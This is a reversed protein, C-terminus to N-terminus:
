LLRVCVCLDRFSDSYILTKNQKKAKFQTQDSLYLGWLNMLKRGSIYTNKYSVSFCQLKFM